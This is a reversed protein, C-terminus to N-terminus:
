IDKKSSLKERIRSLRSAITNRPMGMNMAIEEYSLEDLWMLVIAKDIPNLEAIASYLWQLKDKLDDDAGSEFAIGPLEELSVTAVRSM